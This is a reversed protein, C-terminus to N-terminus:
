RVEYVMYASPAITLGAFWLDAPYTDIQHGGDRWVRVRYTEGASVTTPASRVREMLVGREAGQDLPLDFVAHIPAGVVEGDELRDLTVVIRVTSESGVVDEAPAVDVRLDLKWPESSPNEPIIITPGDLQERTSPDLAWALYEGNRQALDPTGQLESFSGPTFEALPQPTEGGSMPQFFAEPASTASTVVHTVGYRELAAELEQGRLSGAYFDAVMKQRQELDPATPDDVARVGDLAEYFFRGISAPALVTSGPPVGDGLLQLVERDTPSIGEVREYDWFMVSALAPGAQGGYSYLRYEESRAPATGSFRVIKLGAFWVDHPYTDAAARGDRWVRVRYAEGAAFVASSSRLRLVRASGKSGEELFLEFVTHVATGPVPQGEELRDLTVILRVVADADAVDGAPAAELLFALSGPASSTGSPVSVTPGRLEELENADLAWGLYEDGEQAHLGLEPAGQRASFSTVSLALSPEVPQVVAGGIAQMLEEGVSGPGTMVHTVGFRKLASALEDGRLSGDFFGAVLAQRQELDPATPDDVARVGDLAEYALRNISRSISPPALVTSGPPVSDGLLELVERDAPSIGEVREYDWFKVSTLAPGAEGGYSYVRYEESPAPATDLFRVIKLGAFLVDHPYTDTTSEGDRWVRVRYTEGPTVTGALSRLRLLRGGAETGAPLAVEFITHTATGSVPEGDRIEDLTVVLRATTDARVDSAAAVELLVALNGTDLSTGPVAFSPGRLEELEDPDLSWGLYGDGEQAHVGLEPAGQRASFGTVSLALSPEVPQVVAGGMAQVLEEGASGRGTVIHTVGFQQLAQALEAGRLSGDFFGAVLAQRDVIDLGGYDVPQVDDLTGPFWRGIGSPALVTSGPPVNAKLYELLDRVDTRPRVDSLSAHEFGGVLVSGGTWPLVATSSFRQYYAGDDLMGYQEQVFVAAGSVLLLAAPALVPGALALRGGKELLLRRLGADCAFALVLPVPILRPLRWLGQESVTKAFPTALVPVFFVLLAGVVTALVVQNGISRRSTLWVFPALALSTLMFPHLILHYNGMVLGGGLDVLFFERRFLLTAGTSASELNEALSSRLAFGVALAAWPLLLLIGSRAPILSREALARVIVVLALAIGLFAVGMPHVVFLAMVALVSAVYGTVSERSLFRSVLLLGIPLLIYTAVMKDQAIRIIINRGYGDHPSLDLAAYALVFSAALLALPTSRFLGKALTFMAAVALATLLPPLYDMLLDFPEVGANDALLAETVAWVNVAMRGYAGAPTGVAFAQSADLADSNAYENVYAMYVVDDGDRPVRGDAWVPLTLIVMLALGLAVLLLGASFVSTREEAALAEVDDRHWLISLGGAGAAVLAYTMAFADLSWHLRLALLGPAAALAMSMLFAVVLREAPTTSRDGFVSQQLLWGPAVAWVLFALLVAPYGPLVSFVRSYFVLVLLGFIALAAALAAAARRRASADLRGGRWRGYAVSPFGHRAEEVV